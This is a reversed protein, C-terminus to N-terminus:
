ILGTGLADLCTEIANIVTGVEAETLYSSIWAYRIQQSSYTPGAENSAGIWIENWPAPYGTSAIVNNTRTLNIYSDYNGANGRSIAYHKKKNANAIDVYTLDNCRYRVDAARLFINFWGTANSRCGFVWSDVAVNSGIGIIGCIDNVGIITDDVGLRFNSRLYRTAAIDATYGEYQAWTPNNVATPNFTAGATAWNTLSCNQNHTSFFDFFEIKNWITTGIDATMTNFIASTAADPLAWGSADWYALVDAYEMTYTTADDANTYNSYCTGTYARVRYWYQTDEVCTNDSYTVTNAAVTDIEAYTIGDTSREISFGDENTSNDTWTLDLRTDSYVTVVLNTPDGDPCVPAAGSTDTTIKGHGVSLGSIGGGRRGTGNGIKQKNVWIRM